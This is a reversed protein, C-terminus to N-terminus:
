PRGRTPDHDVHHPPICNPPRWRRAGPHKQPVPPRHQPLRASARTRVSYALRGPRVATSTPRATGGELGGAIVAWAPNTPRRWDVRLRTVSRRTFESARYSPVRRGDLASRAHPAPAVFSHRRPVESAAALERPLVRVQSGKVRFLGGPTSPFLLSVSQHSPFGSSFGSGPGFRVRRVTGVGYGAFLLTVFSTHDVVTEFPV